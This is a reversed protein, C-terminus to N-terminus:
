GRIGVRKPCKQAVLGAVQSVVTCAAGGNVEGRLRWVHVGGDVLVCEVVRGVYDYNHKAGVVGLRAEYGVVAGENLVVLENDLTKV